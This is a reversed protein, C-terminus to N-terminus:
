ANTGTDSSETKKEADASDEKGAAEFAENQKRTVVASIRISVEYLIILPIFILVQTIWDPPTIMAALILLVVIAHRRYTRMFQPTVLGMKSLYYVLVPMEFIIGGGLAINTIMGIVKGIKWQNEIGPSITFTSFFRISFPTIVYYAFAVGIFFLISMVLVNGRLGKREHSHLGPKIFRWMEWIFVPFSFIFGGVLSITIAKLFQEPPSIAIIDVDISDFCLAERFKCLMAHTWFDPEFPALIVEKLFWQINVGITIAFVLIAGFSRILHWRLEELHELFSM